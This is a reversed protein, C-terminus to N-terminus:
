DQGICPLTQGTMRHPYGVPGCNLTQGFFVSKPVYMIAQNLNPPYQLPHTSWNLGSTIPKMPLDNYPESYTSHDSICIPTGSASALDPVVTVANFLWM